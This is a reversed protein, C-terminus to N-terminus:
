TTQQAGGTNVLRAMIAISHVKCTTQLTLNFDRAPPHREAVECRLGTEVLTPVYPDGMTEARIVASTRANDFHAM